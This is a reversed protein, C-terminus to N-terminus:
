ASLIAPGWMAANAAKARRYRDFDVMGPLIRHEAENFKLRANERPTARLGSMSTPCSCWLMPM